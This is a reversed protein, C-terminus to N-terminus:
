RGGFLVALARQAREKETRAPPLPVGGGSIDKTSTTDIVSQQADPRAAPAPSQQQAPPAKPAPPSRRKDRASFREARDAELTRALNGPSLDAVQNQRTADDAVKMATTMLDRLYGEVDSGYWAESEPYSGADFSMVGQELSQAFRTMEQHAAQQDAAQARARDEAEKRSEQRKQKDEFMRIRFNPDAKDPALDYLLSQGYMLQQERTWKRSQAYGVPDDEFSAHSKVSQLEHKLRSNEEEYAAQRQVERQQADRKERWDKLADAIPAPKRETPAAEAAPRPAAEPAPPLSLDAPSEVVPPLNANLFATAAQIPTTGAPQQTGSAAAPIPDPM